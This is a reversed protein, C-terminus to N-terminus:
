LQRWKQGGKVLLMGGAAFTIWNQITWNGIADLPQSQAIVLLAFAWFTLMEVVTKKKRSM